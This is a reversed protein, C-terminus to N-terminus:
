KLTNIQEKSWKKFAEFKACIMKVTEDKVLDSPPYINTNDIWGKLREKLPSLATLRETELKDAVAKEEAALKDALEQQLAKVKDDAEKKEKAAKEKERKEKAAKLDREKQEAEFRAQEKAKEKAEYEWHDAAGKKIESLEKQYAEENMGLMNNYDRIFIIYPKLENNRQFRIKEKAETDAKIKANEEELQKREAEAKRDAAEKEAISKQEAALKEAAEKEAKQKKFEKLDRQEDMLTQFDPGSMNELDVFHVAFDPFESMLELRANKLKAKRAKEQNEFYLEVEALQEEMQEVPLTYKNKLADVYKGSALYLAKETEHIAKIGTRVKVLKLRLERAEKCVEETIEKTLISKYIEIYGDREVLKPQFSQSITLVKNEELGFEKPDVKEITLETNM